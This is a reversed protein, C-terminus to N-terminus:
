ELLFMDMTSGNGGVHYHPPSLLLLASAPSFLFLSIESHSAEAMARGEPGASSLLSTSLVQVELSIVTPDDGASSGVM